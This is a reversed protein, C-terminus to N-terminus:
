KATHREVRKLFRCKEEIKKQLHIPPLLGAVDLDGQPREQRSDPHKEQLVRDDGRGLHPVIAGRGRTSHTCSATTDIFPETIDPLYHQMRYRRHFPRSAIYPTFLAINAIRYPCKIAIRSIRYPLAVPPHYQPGYTAITTTIMTRTTAM